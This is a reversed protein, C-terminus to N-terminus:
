RADKRRTPRTHSDLADLRQSWFARLTDVWDGIEDVGDRRLSYLQRQADGRAEVLGSERLMRLHRSVAPRSIAFQSALDGASREGDGLLELIRRRTPDAVAEFAHV